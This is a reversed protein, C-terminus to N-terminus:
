LLKSPIRRFTITKASGYEALLFDENIGKV